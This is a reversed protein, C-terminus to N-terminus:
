SVLLLNVNIKTFETCFRTVTNGLFVIVQVEHESMSVGEPIKLRRRQVM